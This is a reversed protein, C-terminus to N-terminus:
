SPPEPWIVDELSTVHAYDTPLDRLRQRYMQWESRQEATLPSDPVQTWDSGSLYSDRLPRLEYMAIATLEASTPAPKDVVVGDVVHQTADDAVGELIIEDGSRQLAFVEDPCSGTRLITGESNYIVFSKM